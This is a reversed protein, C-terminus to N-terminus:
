VQWSAILKLHTEIVFAASLQRLPRILNFKIFTLLIVLRNLLKEDGFAYLGSKNIKYIHCLVVDECINKYM